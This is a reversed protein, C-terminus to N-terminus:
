ANAFTFKEILLNLMRRQESDMDCFQIGYRRMTLMTFSMENAIQMSSVLKIPIGSMRFDAESCVITLDCPQKLNDPGDPCRFALGGESIDMLLGVKSKSGCRVATTVWKKAQFRKYRRKDM